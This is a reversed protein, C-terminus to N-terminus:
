YLAGNLKRNYLAKIGKRRRPIICAGIAHFNMQDLYVSYIKTWQNTEMIQVDPVQLLSINHAPTFMHAALEHMNGHYKMDIVCFLCPRGYELGRERKIKEGEAPSLLLCRKNVYM